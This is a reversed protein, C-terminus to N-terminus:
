ETKHAKHSAPPSSREPSEPPSPNESKRRPPRAQPLPEPKDPFSDSEPLPQPRHPLTQAPATERSTSFLFTYIGKASLLTGARSLANGGTYRRQGNASYPLVCKM